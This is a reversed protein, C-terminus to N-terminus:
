FRDQLSTRTQDERVGRYTSDVQLHLEVRMTGPQACDNDDADAAALEGFRVQDSSAGALGVGSGILGASPSSIRMRKCSGANRMTPIVSRARSSSIRGGAQSAARM